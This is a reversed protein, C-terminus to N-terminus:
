ELDQDKQSKVLDDINLLNRKTLANINLLHGRRKAEPNYM